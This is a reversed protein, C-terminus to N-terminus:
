LVLLFFGFFIFCIEKYITDQAKIGTRYKVADRMKYKERRLVAAKDLAVCNHTTSQHSLGKRYCRQMQESQLPSTIESLSIPEKVKAQYAAPSLYGLLEMKLNLFFREM